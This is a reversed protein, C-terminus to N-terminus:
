KKKIPVWFEEESDPDEGKYRKDMVAFHPRDDLTYASAPLWQTHIYRFVPAAESPKGKYPFVAYLGAPIDLTEFEDPVDYPDDVRVAAWKEFDRAPDPARFFGMGPFVEASYLEHSANPIRSKLPMFSRWLEGTKDQIFSMHLKKGALTM